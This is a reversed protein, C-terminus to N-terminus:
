RDKILMVQHIFEEKMLANLVAMALNGSSTSGLNQFNSQKEETFNGDPKALVLNNTCLITWKLRSNHLQNKVNLYEDGLQLNQELYNIDNMMLSGDEETKIISADSVVILRDIQQKRLIPILKKVGLSRSNNAEVSSPPLAFIVASSGKVAQELASEDFLSASIATLRKDDPFSTNITNRDFAVVEFEKYLAQKTIEFGIDSSAGFITIKM